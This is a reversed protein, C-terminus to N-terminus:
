RASISKSPKKFRGFNAFANPWRRILTRLLDFPVSSRFTRHECQRLSFCARSWFRRLFKRRESLRPAVKQEGRRKKKEMESANIFIYSVNKHFSLNRKMSEPEPSFHVFSDMNILREYSETANNGPSPTQVCGNCVLEASRLSENSCCVLSSNRALASSTQRRKSLLTAIHRGPMKEEIGERM